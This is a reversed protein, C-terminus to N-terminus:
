LPIVWTAIHNGVSRFFSVGIYQFGLLDCSEALVFDLAADSVALAIGRGALRSAVQLRAVKKLQEPSLPDFVVIENLRNLLEPGFHRRAQELSVYTLIRM